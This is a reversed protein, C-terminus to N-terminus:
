PLSGVKIQHPDSRVRPAGRSSGVQVRGPVALASCRDKDEEALAHLLRKVLIGPSMAGLQTSKGGKATSVVLIKGAVWCNGM